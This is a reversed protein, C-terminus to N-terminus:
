EVPRSLLAALPLLATDADPLLEEVVEVVAAGAAASGQAAMERGEGAMETTRLPWDM